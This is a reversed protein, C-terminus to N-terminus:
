VFNGVGTGPLACFNMVVGPACMARALEHGVVRYGGAFKGFTRHIPTRELSMPLRPVVAQPM